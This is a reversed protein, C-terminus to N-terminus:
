EGEDLAELRRHAADQLQQEVNGAKEMSQKYGEPLVGEPDEEKTCGVLSAVLALLMIPILHKRHPM